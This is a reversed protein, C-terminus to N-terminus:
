PQGVPIPQDRMVQDRLVQGDLLGVPAGPRGNPAAEIAEAGASGAPVCAAVGPMVATCVNDPPCDAQSSCEGDRMASALTPQNLEAATAPRAAQNAAATLSHASFPERPSSDEAPSRSSGCALALCPFILWVALTRSM